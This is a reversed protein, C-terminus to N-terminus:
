NRTPRDFLGGLESTRAASGDFFRVILDRRALIGKREWSNLWPSLQENLAEGTLARLRELLARDCHRLDRPKLLWTHMRFARSHDIMWIRWQKDILLNGTNRDTNAILQDFVRVVDIERNWRLADPAETKTVLRRTEDMLVDDIWWTLAGYRGQIHREISVPVMDGIGLLVALRYGAINFKYTDKFNMEVDTVTRFERQQIDISQFEADHRFGDKELTLRLANTVGTGIPRSEVVKATRLFEEQQAPTLRVRPQDQASVLPPLAALAMASFWLRVAVSRMRPSVARETVLPAEGRTQQEGGPGPRTATGAVRQIARERTEM